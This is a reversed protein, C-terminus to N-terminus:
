VVEAEEESKTATDKPYKKQFPRIILRAERDFRIYNYVWNIFVVVRNRFGILFYLHVFMWIFWAFVGQFKFRPLDAVARNRGITAMSGKDKYVFPKLARGEMSALLNYGLNRGQQLAPQAMMPHGYPYDESIMEAVDGIAYISDYGQVKNFCDVKLRGGKGQCSAESLGDLRVAKVGAAWILAATEFRTKTNTEAKWGDYNIVRMDKWVHVGLQELFDEAKKSAIESMAPLLRSAGQVLNIQARRTDLDPYDKPLIGKKIEALAGALEVGTPGGGVIVFNMLADRRHLDDTLLAQEFNQLILSRLNLSQPISKMAMSNKELSANGFFNTETGAAIVLYDYDLPGINTLVQKDQTGIGSVEALRFYFNPFGQLVKRIPYAISDPELGGTSVQYLLPQFTHYNHKDLLVVQVEKKCLSKALSLGAFGGGIIVVRPFSSQPINM